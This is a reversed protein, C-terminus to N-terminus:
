SEDAYGVIEAPDLRKEDRRVQFDAKSPARRNAEILPDWSGRIPEPLDLEDWLDILLAGDVYLIFEAEGGQTVVNEYVTKRDSRLVHQSLAIHTAV